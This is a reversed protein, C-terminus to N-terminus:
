LSVSFLIIIGVKKRQNKNKSYIYIGNHEGGPQVINILKRCTISKWLLAIANEMHVDYVSHQAHRM